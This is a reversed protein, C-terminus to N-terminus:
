FIHFAENIVSNLNENAGRPHGGKLREGEGRAPHEGECLEEPGM